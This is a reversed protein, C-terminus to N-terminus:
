QRPARLRELLVEESVYEAIRDLERGDDDLLILAPLHDVHYRELLVRGRRSEESVDIRLPVYGGFIEARVAPVRLTQEDLQVCEDSWDAWFSVLVRRGTRKAEQVADAEDLRWFGRARAAYVEDPLDGAAEDTLVDGGPVGAGTLGFPYGTRAATQSGSADVDPMVWVDQARQSGCAILLSGALWMGTIRACCGSVRRVM